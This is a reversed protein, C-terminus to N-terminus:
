SFESNLGTLSWKFISRTDYWARASPNTFIIYIYIYVHIIGDNITFLIFIFSAGERERYIYISLSLPLSFAHVRVCMRAHVRVCVCVCRCACVCVCVCVCTCVCVKYWKSYVALCGNLGLREEEEKRQLKTKNWKIENHKATKADLKMSLFMQPHWKSFHRLFFSTLWTRISYRFIIM